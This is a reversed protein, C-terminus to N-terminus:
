LVEKINLYEVVHIYKNSHKKIVTKIRHIYFEYERAPDLERPYIRQQFPYWPYLYDSYTNVDPYPLGKEIIEEQSDINEYYYRKSTEFVFNGNDRLDLSARFSDESDVDDQYAVIVVPPVSMIAGKRRAKEERASFVMSEPIEFKGNPLVRWNRKQMLNSNKVDDVSRAVALYMGTKNTVTLAVDKAPLAEFSSFGPLEDEYDQFVPDETQSYFSHPSDLGYSGFELQDFYSAQISFHGIFLVLLIFNVFRKM